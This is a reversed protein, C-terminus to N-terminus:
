LMCRSYNCPGDLSREVTKKNIIENKCINKCIKDNKDYEQIKM